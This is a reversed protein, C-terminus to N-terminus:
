LQRLTKSSAGARHKLVNIRHRMLCKELYFRTWDYEVEAHVGLRNRSYFTMRHGLYRFLEKHICISGIQKLWQKCQGPQPPTGESPHRPSWSAWRRRSRLRGDPCPTRSRPSRLFRFRSRSSSSSGVSSILVEGGGSALILNEWRKAYWVKTTM